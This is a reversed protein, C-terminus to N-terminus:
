SRGEGCPGAAFAFGPSAVMIAASLLYAIFQRFPQM